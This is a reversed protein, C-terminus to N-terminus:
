YAVICNFCALIYFLVPKSAKYSMRSPFPAPRNKCGMLGCPAYTRDVALNIETGSTYLFGLSHRLHLGVSASVLKDVHCPVYDFLVQVDNGTDLEHGTITVNTGGARPGILPWVRSM